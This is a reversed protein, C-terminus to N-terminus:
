EAYFYQEPNTPAPHPFKWAAPMSEPVNRMNENVIGYGTPPLSIGLQWFQDTSLELLETMLRNQEAEDGTGQIQDYLSMM